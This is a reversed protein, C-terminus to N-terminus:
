KYYYIWSVYPLIRVDNQYFQHLLIVFYLSFGTVAGLRCVQKIWGKKMNEVLGPILFIQACILYYGIRSVEPVFGGCLFVIMGFVSLWFYFRHSEQIPSVEEKRQMWWAIGFLVIAAVCKALNVYSIRSVDFETNEYFPYFKFILWRYFKQGFVLSALFAGGAAVHWKKVGHRALSYAVLYLPITILITKHVTAFAVILLLFKGYERRLVYKMSYAAVALALYYRITNFSQFYFGGTMLLFLSFVFSEGQDHIARVFFFVTVLSFFAFLPLYNDYGFLHFLAKVVLNFGIESSVHADYFIRRFNERYVWYDNGLAFRCASVATLLSFIVFEAVASVADRRTPPNWRGSRRGQNLFVPSSVRSQILLAFGVTGLTLLVFILASKEM